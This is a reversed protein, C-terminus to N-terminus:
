RMDKVSMGHEAVTQLNQEDARKVEDQHVHEPRKDRMSVKNDSRLLYVGLRQILLEIGFVPKHGELLVLVREQVINPAADVLLLLVLAKHSLGSLKNVLDGLLLYVDELDFLVALFCLSLSPLLQLHDNCLSDFVLFLNQLGPPFVQWIFDFNLLFLHPDLLHLGDNSHM